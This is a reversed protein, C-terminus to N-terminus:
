DALISNSLDEIVELNYGLGDLVSKVSSVDSPGCAVATKTIEPNMFLPLYKQALSQVDGLSVKSLKKVFRRNYYPDDTQRLYAKVSASNLDEITEEREAWSYIQSGKASELLDLDWKYEGVYFTM